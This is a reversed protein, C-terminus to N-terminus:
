EYLKEKWVISKVYITECAGAGDDTRIMSTKWVWPRKGELSVNVLFGNIRITDGKKIKKIVKLLNKSAPILHCNASNDRIQTQPIPYDRKWSYRYFRMVQGIKLGKLSEPDSMIGWGLAYDWPIVKAELGRYYKKKHLLLADITYNAQPIFSAKKYLENRFEPETTETQIPQNRPQLREYFEKTETPISLVFSVSLYLIIVAAFSALILKLNV